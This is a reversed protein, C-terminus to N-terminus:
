PGAVPHGDKYTIKHFPCRSDTVIAMACHECRESTKSALELIEIEKAVGQYRERGKIAFNGVMGIQHADCWGHGRANKRCVPCAIKTPDTRQARALEYTLRSFYAMKGVFGIKHEECYGDSDLAKQCESCQFSAAGTVHGHADMIEYLDLSRIKVDGVYGVGHRECWGGIGKPAGCTCPASPTKTTSPFGAFPPTESSATPPPVALLGRSALPPVAFAATVVAFWFTRAKM